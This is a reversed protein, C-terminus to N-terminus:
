DIGFRDYLRCCQTRTPLLTKLINNARDYCDGSLSQIFADVAQMDHLWRINENDNAVCDVYSRLYDMIDSQLEYSEVLMLFCEVLSFGYRRSAIEGVSWAIKALVVDREDNTLELDSYSYIPDVKM